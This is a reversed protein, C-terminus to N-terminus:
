KAEVAVIEGYEQTRKRADTLRKASITRRETKGNRLRYTILYKAM